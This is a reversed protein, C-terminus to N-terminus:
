SFRLPPQFYSNILRYLILVKKGLHDWPINNNSYLSVLLTRSNMLTIRRDFQEAGMGGMGRCGQSCWKKPANGRDKWLKIEVKGTSPFPSNLSLKVYRLSISLEAATICVWVRGRMRTHCCRYLRTFLHITKLREHGPM